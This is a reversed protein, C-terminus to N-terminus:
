RQYVLASWMSLQVVLIGSGSSSCGFRMGVWLVASGILNLSTPYCYEWPASCVRSPLKNRLDRVRDAQSEFGYCRTAPISRSRRQARGLRNRLRTHICQVRELRLGRDTRDCVLGVRSTTGEVDKDLIFILRV